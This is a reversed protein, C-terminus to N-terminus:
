ERMLLGVEKSIGPTWGGMEKFRECILNMVEAERQLSDPFDTCGVHDWGPSPLFRYWTGLQVRDAEKVQEITPYKM